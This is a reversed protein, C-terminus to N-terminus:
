KMMGALVDDIESLEASLVTNRIASRLRGVNYEGSAVGEKELFVGVREACARGLEALRRYAPNDAKFQPLPVDLIKKHVDRPGFLGTTQFDKIALNASTSNLFAALYNAEAESDTFFVYAKNEVLFELDITKRDLVLANADKASSTYLVLFRANLDQETLKNQWNLYKVSTTNANNETRNSKRIAEVDRFWRATELDGEDRIQEDTLLKITKKGNVPRVVLPLVVLPPNILGFPVINRAIATRFLFSTNIKGELKLDKWPLKADKDNAEDSRVPVVRDHWNPPKPGELKVFYFNRPFITAGNMFHNRYFNEGAGQGASENTTLASNKQLKAYFWRTPLSTIRAGAESLTANHKKLSGSFSRGPLGEPPVARVVHSQRTFLVCSPINFLPVVKQLDWVETLSFGRATGARTNDHHEASLFARPLVFALQGGPKLLYSSVHSMFIAAIEMQPMLAKKAPTVQYKDALAKLLAQYEANKISNYTFWPPNGLIFDFRHKLFFPKYTNQLIFKCISDRGTEKARKLDLYLEYFKGTLAADATPKYKHIANQLTAPPVPAANVSEDALRDALSVARDFLDPDDFVGTPLFHNRDDIRIRFEEGFLTAGGKIEPTELSNSLYVRLFIPRKAAGVLEGLALLVTTKAIQVSLPHIDIGTVRDALEEASLDPFERRLRTVTALLFSGSGCSPDLVRVEQTLPVHNVITECLWDPTYYEGLTHRTDIDILHQYVGKLIDAQVNRFDYDSIREAIKLFHRALKQFYKPVTVWQYFDNEVFNEVNYKDFISGDLVGKM